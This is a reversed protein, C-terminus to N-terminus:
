MEPEKMYHLHCNIFHGKTLETDHVHQQSWYYIPWVYAYDCIIIIYYNDQMANTLMFNAFM